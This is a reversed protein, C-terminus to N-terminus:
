NFLVKFLFVGTSRWIKRVRQWRFSREGKPLLFLRGLWELGLKQMWRPARKKRGTWFDFTGGVGIALKLNPLQQKIEFIFEEQEPAGLGVLLIEKEQLNKSMIESKAGSWAFLEVKKNKFFRELDSRSSLGEERYIIGIKLNNELGKKLIYEALDVGTLRCGTKLRKIIGALKLGFGDTVRLSFNNLIEAYRSNDKALLLIEPNLTAITLVSSAQLNLAEDILLYTEEKSYNGLKVGWLQNGSM